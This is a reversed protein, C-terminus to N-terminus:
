SEPKTLEDGGSKGCESDTLLKHHHFNVIFLLDVPTFISM